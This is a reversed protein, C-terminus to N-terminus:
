NFDGIPNPFDPEAQFIWRGISHVCAGPDTINCGVHPAAHALVNHSLLEDAAGILADARLKIQADADAVDANALDFPLAWGGCPMASPKASISGGNASDARRCVPGPRPM